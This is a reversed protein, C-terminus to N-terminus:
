ASLQQAHRVLGAFRDPDAMHANHVSDHLLVLEARPLNSVLWEGAGVRHDGSPHARSIVCPARVADVDFAGQDRVTVLEALVAPWEGIRQQRTSEPLADWAADGIVRRMFRDLGVAPEDDELRRGEADAVPWWDLFSLPAEHAVVSTVREPRLSAAHLALLGGLSHGVITLDDGSMSDVIAVLDDVHSSFEVPEGGASRGYGRRDYITWSVDDLRRTTRLFAAGRDMVGHVFLIPAGGGGSAGVVGPILEVHEM